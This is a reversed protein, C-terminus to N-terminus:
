KGQLHLMRLLEDEDIVKVGLKRAKILKSGAEEGAVVFDTKRSVASNIKGGKKKILESAQERSFKNLTGTLVFTKQVLLGTVGKKNLKMKPDIGIKKLKRIVTRNPSNSFFDLVSQAIKPGIGEIVQLRNYDADLLADISGFESALIEAVKAGVFRIGLAFIFKHLPRNKSAEIGQMLNQASKDGM